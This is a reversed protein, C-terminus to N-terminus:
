QSGCSESFETQQWIWKKFEQHAVNTRKLAMEGPPYISCVVSVTLPSSSVGGHSATWLVSIDVSMVVHVGVGYVEACFGAMGCDTLSIDSRGTSYLLVVGM